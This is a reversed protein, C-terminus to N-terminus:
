EPTREDTQGSRERLIREQFTMPNASSNPEPTAAEAAQPTDDHEVALDPTLMGEQRRRIRATIPEKAPAHTRQVRQPAADITSAAKLAKIRDALESVSPGSEDAQHPTTSLSSFSVPFLPRFKIAVTGSV